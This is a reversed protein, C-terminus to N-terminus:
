YYETINTLRLFSGAQWHTETGIALSNLVPLLDRACDRGCRDIDPPRELLSPPSHAAGSLRGHDIHGAQCTYRLGGNRQHQVANGLRPDRLLGDLAHLTRGLRQVIRVIGATRRDVFAEFGGDDPHDHVLDGRIGPHGHGEFARPFFAYGFAVLHHGEHGVAILLGLDGGRAGQRLEIQDAQDVACNLGADHRRGGTRRRRGM